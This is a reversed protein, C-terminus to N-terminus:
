SSVETRRNATRCAPRIRTDGMGASLLTAAPSRDEVGEWIRIPPITGEPPQIRLGCAELRCSVGSRADM